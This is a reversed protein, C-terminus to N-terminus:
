KRAEMMADAFRYRAQGRTFMGPEHYIHKRGGSDRVKEVMVGMPQWYKIDDESAKAALYDRLTMGFHQAVIDGTVDHLEYLPFAPLQSFKM